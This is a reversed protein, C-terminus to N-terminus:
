VLEVAVGPCPVLVGDVLRGKDDFVVAVGEDPPTEADDESVGVGTVLKVLAGATTGESPSLALSLAAMRREEEAKEKEGECM